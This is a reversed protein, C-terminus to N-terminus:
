RGCLQRVGGHHEREAHRELEVGHVAPHGAVCCGRDHGHQCGCRVRRSAAPQAPAGVCRRPEGGGGTTVSAPLVTLGAEDNDANTVLVDAADFGNYWEDTSAAAHTRVVLRVDGDRVDDNVGTVTVTKPTDWKAPTFVVSNVNLVCEAPNSSEVGVRVDATPKSKLTLVFTASEGAETTRLGETPTVTIGASDNDTNTLHVVVASPSLAGYLADDSAIREAAVTYPIDKDYGDDDLGTVVVTQAVNWFSPLFTLKSPTATGETPMSSVLDIEVTHTPKSKLQVTFSATQGDESTVLGSRPTVTVGATDNDNNLVAVDAANMGDYKPDTSIAASTVIKVAVDGDDQDDDTGQVTVVAATSWNGATFLLVGPLVSCETIDDSSLDVRVGSLPETALKVTFTASTGSESTVLGETPELVIAATDDDVNVCAVNSVVMNEYKPDTSVANALTVTFAVDDDDVSDDKGQVTVTRETAWNAPTFLLTSTDITGELTNSSVLGITVDATPQSNLYVTFTARGGAETVSLGTTPAVTVGPTDNDINTISYSDVARNDYSPDSSSVDSLTIRYDVNGDDLPDDVGVITVNQPTDWNSPSFIILRNAVTGESADSSTATISVGSTPQSQLVITFHATGGGETTVLGATNTVLIGATDDDENVVTVSPANYGDYRPDASVAAKTEILFTVNGDAVKDDAGTVTATQAVNWNLSTFVVESPSVSAESPDGSVLRISVKASPKTNLRVAFTSTGGAETTRLGALPDITVGATDGDTNSVAVAAVSQAHYALDASAVDISVEYAVDGDDVDDDVGTVTVTQPVRWAEPVFELTSPAVVGELTNSSRFAFNVNHYPRTALVVSFTATGGAETTVLPDSAKAVVVSAADNDRNLCHLEVPPLLRYNNDLTLLTNFSVTHNQDGDAVNDNIGELTVTLPTQWSATTFVLFTPDFAVETTDGTFQVTVDVTPQSKLVVTVAATGGDETTVLPTVVPTAVLGATDDDTNTASVDLGSLGHYNRDASTAQQTAIVYAVDGDVADDNIGTVTVTQEVNWNTTTFVLAPASLKAETTDTTLPLTVTSTPRSRLRVTFTATGGAESTVLGRLPTTIIGPTDDDQNTVPVDSVSMGNYRADGTSSVRFRMAYETDGDQLTDQVGTVQVTRAIQWNAPSFLITSPAVTGEGPNSSSISVTVQDVPETNLVITFTDSTGFETTRLGTQPTVTLGKTDDDLCKVSVSSVDINSYSADQSTSTGTISFLVDGDDIKDDVGTVRVTVPVNWNRSNFVFSAPELSAETTDWSFAVTAPSLPLSKLVVTFTSSAGAESVELVPTAPSVLVGAVDNDRNVGAVASPTASDYAADGSTAALTIGFAKDGDDEDDDQGVVEFVQVSSYNTPSFVLRSPSVVVEDGAVSASVTVDSLPESALAVTFQARTGAESTVLGETPTVAFGVVDDDTNVVGVDDADYGAYAADNSVAPGTVVRYQTDGDAVKDQVGRVSITQPFLWTTPTFSVSALALVGETDDSSSLPVTVSNYPESKLVITFLASAGAESTVLGSTPTVTIGRVDNDANTVSVFPVVVSNYTTDSSTAPGLLVKYVVNGDVKKDDLGKVEVTQNANWNQTTFTLSTVSVRGEAANDVSVPVTVSATPKTVLVVTFSATDGAETTTLVRPHVSVGRLDVDLVTVTVDQLNLGNYDVDQSILTATTISVTQDGDDSDDAVGKVTVAQPTAYNDSTFTLSSVLVKAELTNSSTLPLTVVSTPRSILSVSFTAETGDESVTLAAPTLIAGKCCVGTTCDAVLSGCVHNGPLQKLSYPSPCTYLACTAQCTHTWKRESTSWVPTGTYGTSCTCTGAPASNAPCAQELCQVVNFATGDCTAACNGPCDTGQGVYGPKCAVFVKTGTSGTISGTASYLVSNTVATAPCAQATCQVDSFTLTTAICTASPATAKYGANCVIATTTGVVGCLSNSASYASNAVQTCACPKPTCQHIWGTGGWTPTGDYGTNCTCIPQTNANAPCPALSCASTSAYSATDSSAPTCTVSGTCVYGQQPTVGCAQGHLTASTCSVASGPVTPANAASCPKRDCCMDDGCTATTSGSCSITNSQAKLTFGQAGSCPAFGCTIFCCLTVTCDRAPDAKVGVPPANCRITDAAARLLFGTGAACTTTTPAVLGTAVLAGGTVQLRAPESCVVTCHNSIQVTDQATCKALPAGSTGAVYGPACTLVCSAGPVTDCTNATITTPSVINNAVAAAQVSALSCTIPVCPNNLQWAGNVTGMATASGTCQLTPAGGAGHKYGDACTLACAANLVEDCGTTVVSNVFSSSFETFATACVIAQCVANSVTYANAGSVSCLATPTGTCYHGADITLIAGAAGVSVVDGTSRAAFTGVSMHTPPTVSGTCTKPTCTLATVPTLAAASCALAVAGAADYGVNCKLNCTNATVPKLASVANSAVTCPTGATAPEMGVLLTYPDCVKETCTLTTAPTLQATGCSLVASGGAAYGAQCALTCQNATVPKLVGPQVTSTMITCASALASAQMGTALPYGGCLVETCGAGGVTYSGMANCQLTATGTFGALCTLTCTGGVATNCAALEASTPAVVNVAAAGPWPTPCTIVTCPNTVQYSNAAICRITPAAASTFGAVCTSTCAGEAVSDCATLVAVNTVHNAALLASADAGCTIAACCVATACAPHGAVSCQVAAPSPVLEFGTPCAFNGCNEGAAFGTCCVLLLLLTRSARHRLEM